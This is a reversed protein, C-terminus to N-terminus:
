SSSCLRIPEVALEVVQIAGTLGCRSQPSVDSRKRPLLSSWGRLYRLDSVLALVSMPPERHHHLSDNPCSIHREVGSGPLPNTPMQITQFAAKLVAGLGGRDEDKRRTPCFPHYPQM